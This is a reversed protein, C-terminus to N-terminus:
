QRSVTFSTPHYLFIAPLDEMIYKQLDMYITRREKKGDLSRGDELLKDVRLNKFQTFNTGQTSHWLQYQDPDSPVAQALLLVSFDQPIERVIEVDVTLGLNQWDKKILDADEAFAPLTSITIKGLKKESKTLLQKAHNLDFDYKKIDPNYAWSTEPIPGYSRNLYRSKDLAYNLAQRLNKDLKNNNFFLAVYRDNQIAESIKVGPWAKFEKVDFLDQLQRVYGLKFALKAIDSSAYFKYVIKPLNTNKNLPSIEIEELIFGNKKVKRAQYEGIGILGKKFVPRSLSLLLPSYPQQLRVVVHTRDPYEFKADQFHYDIDQSKVESGDHWRIGPNLEFIYTKGGDKVEWAKALAPAPAGNETITTLGLSLKKQISLPLNTENFRGVLGVELTSRYKPLLNSIKPVLLFSSIGLLIGFSVAQYYQKAFEMVFRVGFRIKRLIPHPM